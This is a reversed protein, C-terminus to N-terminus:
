RFELSPQADKFNLSSGFRTKPTRFDNLVVSNGNRIQAAMSPTELANTASTRVDARAPALFAM